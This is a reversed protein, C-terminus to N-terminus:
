EVRSAGLAALSLFSHVVRGQEITLTEDPSLPQIALVGYGKTATKIPLFRLGSDTFPSSEWGIDDGTKLCWEAEALQKDNLSIEKSTIIVRLTGKKAFLVAIKWPFHKETNEFLAKAIDEVTASATLNESLQYLTAIHQEELQAATASDRARTILVSIVVGVIFLVIFTIISLSDAISLSFLPPVFLIDYSLVSVAATFVAPWLGWLVAIAVVALLYFMIINTRDLIGTLLYCVVSVLAVLAAASLYGYVSSPRREQKSAKMALETESVVHVDISGSTRLVTETVSFPTRILDYLRSKKPRGIIITTITNKTAYRLIEEAISSGFVSETKAGYSAALHLLKNMQDKVSTTYRHYRPRQIHLVDWDAQLKQALDRGKEILRHSLAINTSICVLLHQHTPQSGSDRPKDV